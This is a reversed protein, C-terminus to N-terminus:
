PLRPTSLPARPGGLAPAAPPSSSPCSSSRTRARAVRDSSSHSRPPLPRRGAPLTPLLPTGSSHPLTKGAAFFRAGGCPLHHASTRPQLLRGAAAAAEQARECAGGRGAGGRVFPRLRPLPPRPTSSAAAPPCKLPRRVGSDVPASGKREKKPGGRDKKPNAMRVGTSSHLHTRDHLGTLVPPQCPALVSGGAASPTHSVFSNKLYLGRECCVPVVLARVPASQCM